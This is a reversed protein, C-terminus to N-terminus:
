AARSRIVDNFDGAPPTCLRAERGADAWRQACDEAARMGAGDPDAFITLAGIGPLLPFRAIAGASTAAWVPRWDFGQMVALSTEIGEALGLGLTVEEDPVLRICGARGLMIKTREGEAKGSGDARLYTVHVGCPEASAPDSMLAVMAPGRPGFAANRWANPHFRLPADPEIQLGRSQLYTEVLTGAAPTAERWLDRALDLTAPPSAAPPAEPPRQRAELARRPRDEGDMGLWALAWGYAAGMTERRLHAVLALADGGEGAEHDYWAGRKAGAMEVALSGRARFRWTERGRHSPEGALDRVLEPMREALMAAVTPADPRSM